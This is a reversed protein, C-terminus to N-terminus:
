RRAPPRDRDQGAAGPAIGPDSKRRRLLFPGVLDAFQRAKTPEHARSSRRRGVGQPVRQPQRAPGPIAWDLIAWLETLNNEVPTGTLAVRAAGPIARLARATSSAPTRSTSPRTPSSWAGRRGRRLAPADRRLTGHDHARHRVDDARLGTPELDDLSRRGGHFRRVPTGPRSGSSRPRGTASCRPRASWWRRGRGAPTARSAAPAPAPRDATVTKGLGMDDALCCGLGLTTLQDLWTLGHRQYDRLTPGCRRGAGAGARPDAAGLLRERVESCAPASWSRRARTARGRGRRHARRRGGAGAQRHPDAAEQGQPRGGPRRGDLRRAAPAGPRGGRGAPGDRGRHAPRRAARGALTFAFMADPGFCGTM